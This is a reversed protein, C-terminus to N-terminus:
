VVKVQIQIPVSPKSEFCTVVIEDSDPVIKSVMDWAEKELLATALTNSYVPNIVLFTSSFVNPVQITQTYPAQSGVWTTTISVLEPPLSPSILWCDIFNIDTLYTNDTSCGTLQGCSDYAAGNLGNFASSLCGTLNHSRYFGITTAASHSGAKAFSNSVMECQQFCISKTASESSCNLSIKVNTLYNSSIAGLGEIYSTSYIECNSVNRCRDLGRFTSSQLDINCNVMNICESFGVAYQTTRIITNCNNLGVCAAFATAVFTGDSLFTCNEMNQFNKFGQSFVPSAFDVTKSSKVTIDRISYELGIPRETYGVWMPEVEAPTSCNVLEITAKKFGHIQAVSAPVIMGTGVPPKFTFDNGDGVFAVNKAGLWNPSSILTIFQTQNTIVQDYIQDGYVGSINVLEHWEVLVKDGALLGSTFTFSTNTTESFSSNPQRIGNLYVAITNTGVSYAGATLVFLKQGETAVLEQQRFTAGTLENTSQVTQISIFTFVDGIEWTGTTKSITNGSVSYDIGKSLVVSNKVVILSTTNAKFDPIPITVTSLASNLTISQEDSVFSEGGGKVTQWAVGDFFELQGETIRLGHTDGTSIQKQIHNTLSIPLSTDIIPVIGQAM